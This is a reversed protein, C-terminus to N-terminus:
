VTLYTSGSLAIHPPVLTAAYFAAILAYSSDSRRFCNHLLLGCHCSKRLWFLHFHFFRHRGTASFSFSSEYIVCIKGFINKQCILCYIIRIILVVHCMYGLSCKDQNKFFVIALCLPSSVFSFTNCYVSHNLTRNFFLSREYNTHGTTDDFRSM